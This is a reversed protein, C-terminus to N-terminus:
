YNYPLISFFSCEYDPSSLIFGQPKFLVCLFPLFSYKNHKSASSSINLKKLFKTLYQPILSYLFILSIFFKSIFLLFNLINTPKQNLLICHNFDCSINNQGCFWHYILLFLLWIVLILKLTATTAQVNM